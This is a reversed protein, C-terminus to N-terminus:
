MKIYCHSSLIHQVTYYCVDKIELKCYNEQMPSEKNVYTRLLEQLFQVEWQVKTQAAIFVGQIFWKVTNTTHTSLHVM